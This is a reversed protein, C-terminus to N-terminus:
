VLEKSLRESLEKYPSHIFVGGFGADQLASFESYQDQDAKDLLRIVMEMESESLTKKRFSLMAIFTAVWGFAMIGIILIYGFM